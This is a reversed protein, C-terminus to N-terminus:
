CYPTIQHGISFARGRRARASLSSWAVAPETTEMAVFSLRLIARMLTTLPATHSSVFRTGNQEKRKRYDSVRIDLRVDSKRRLGYFTSRKWPGTSLWLPILSAALRERDGHRTAHSRSFQWVVDEDGVGGEERRGM